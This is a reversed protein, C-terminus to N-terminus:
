SQFQVSNAFSRPFTKNQHFATTQSQVFYKRLLVIKYRTKHYYPLDQLWNAPKSITTVTICARIFINKWFLGLNLILQWYWSTGILRWYWKYWNVLSKNSLDEEFIGWINIMVWAVVAEVFDNVKQRFTITIDTNFRSCPSFKFHTDAM